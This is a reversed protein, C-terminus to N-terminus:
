QSVTYFSRYSFLTKPAHQDSHSTTAVTCRGRSQHEAAAKGERQSFCLKGARTNVFHHPGIFFGICVESCLISVVTLPVTSCDSDILLQM